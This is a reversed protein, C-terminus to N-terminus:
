VLGDCATRVAELEARRALQAEVKQDVERSLTSLGNLRSEVNEVFPLRASVRSVQADLDAVTEHLRTAKQTGVEVLKMKGLIADMKAELEPAQGSFAAMREGFAELGLRDGSLRDALKAIASLASHFSQIEKRVGELDHR